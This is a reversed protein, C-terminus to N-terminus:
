KYPYRKYPYRKSRELLLLKPVPSARLFIKM